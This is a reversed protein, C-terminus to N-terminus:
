LNRVDVFCSAFQEPKPRFGKDASANGIKHNGPQSVEERRKERNDDFCPSFLSDKCDHIPVPIFPVQLEMSEHIFPLSSGGGPVNVQNSAIHRVPDLIM